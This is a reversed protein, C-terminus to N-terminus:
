EGRAFVNAPEHLHMGRALTKVFVTYSGGVAFDNESAATHSQM